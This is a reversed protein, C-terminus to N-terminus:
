AASTRTFGAGYRREAWQLVLISVTTLLLYILAVAFYFTFPQRTAGAALAAKRMVDDLGIISLLATAKLMVLWNNGFGPLAHRIMQPMVIRRFVKSGRMGFAHAAEIQGAPVALIAGRFTEAMYAGYIFGLTLVGAIFPNIDVYDEYGVMPALQNVLMQGGFFILLMLVLDPIGRIITTYAFAPADLARIGSLRGLAAIIGLMVAVALSVLAAEITLITGDLLAPGYGRLNLM